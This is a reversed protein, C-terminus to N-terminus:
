FMKVPSDPDRPGYNYYGGITWTLVFQLTYSYSLEARCGTLHHSKANMHKVHPEETQIDHRMCICAQWTRCQIRALIRAQCVQLVNSMKWIEVQLM